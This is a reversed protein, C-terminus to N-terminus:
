NSKLLWIEKGKPEKSHCHKCLTLGNSLVFRLEIFIAFPKIHHAELYVGKARCKQCTYNDREFVKKRWEKYKNSERIFKYLKRLSYKKSKKLNNSIRKQKWEKSKPRDTQWKQYCSRSCFKCDGKKIAAPQRWFEKSCILCNFFSGRRKALAKKTRHEETQKYGKHAM